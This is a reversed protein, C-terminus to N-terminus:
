QKVTLNKFFADIVNKEKVETPENIYKSLSDGKILTEFKSNFKKSKEISSPTLNIFSNEMKKLIYAGQRTQCGLHIIGNTNQLDKSTLIEIFEKETTKKKDIFNGYELILQHYIRKLLQEDGSFGFSLPKQKKNKRNVNSINISTIQIESRFKTYVSEIELIFELLIELYSELSADEKIRKRVDNFDVNSNTIIEDIVQRNSDKLVRLSECREQLEKKKRKCAHILQDSFTAYLICSPDEYIFDEHSVRRSDSEPLYEADLYLKDEWSPNRFDYIM